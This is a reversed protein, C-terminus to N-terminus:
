WFLWQLTAYNQERLGSKIIGDRASVHCTGEAPAHARQTYMEFNLTPRAALGGESM